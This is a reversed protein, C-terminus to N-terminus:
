DPLVVPCVDEPPVRAGAARGLRVADSEPSGRVVGTEVPKMGAVRLGRKRMAALIAIAVITKGVGTDTGTVGLRLLRPRPQFDDRPRALPPIAYPMSSDCHPACDASTSTRRRIM